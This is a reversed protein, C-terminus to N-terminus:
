SATSGTDRREVQLEVHDPRTSLYDQLANLLRETLRARQKRSLPQEKEPADLIVFGVRNSDDGAAVFAFDVHVPVDDHWHRVVLAPRDKQDAYHRSAREQYVWGRTADAFDALIELPTLRANEVPSLALHAIPEM